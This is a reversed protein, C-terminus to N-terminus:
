QNSTYGLSMLAQLFSDGCAQRDYMRQMLEGVIFSKLTIRVQQSGIRNIRGELQKRKFSNGYFVSTYVSDFTTLSYGEVRTSTTIAVRYDPTTGAAVTQPTVHIGTSPIVVVLSTLEQVASYMRSAMDQDSVVVLVRAGKPLDIALHELYKQEVRVWLMKLHARLDAVNGDAFMTYETIRDILIGTEHHESFASGMATLVNKPTVKYPVQMELWKAIEFVHNNRAPTASMVVSYAAQSALRLASSTRQTKPDLTNHVEDLVFVAQSMYPELMSLSTKLQDHHLLLVGHLPPPPQARSCVVLGPRGHLANKAATNNAPTVIYNITDFCRTLETYASVLVARPVCWIIYGPLSQRISYLSDLVMKTKGSGTNSFFGFSTRGQRFRRQMLEVSETQVPSPERLDPRFSSANWMEQQLSSGLRRVLGPHFVHTTLYHMGMADRVTFGKSANPTIIGPCVVCLRCLFIFADSDVLRPLVDQNAGGDRGIDPFRISGGLTGTLHCVRELVRTALANFMTHVLVEWNAAIGACNRTLAAEVQHHLPVTLMAALPIERFTSITHRLVRLHEWRTTPSQRQPRGLHIHGDDAGLYARKGALSPPVYGMANIPVGVTRLMQKALTIVFEQETEEITDGDARVTRSPQRVVQLQVPESDILIVFYKNKGRKVSIHGIAGQIWERCLTTPMDAQGVFPPDVTCVPFGSLWALRQARQVGTVWEPDTSGITTHTRRPNHGTVLLFIKDMTPGFPRSPTVAPPLLLMPLFRVVWPACHQDMYHSIHVWLPRPGTRIVLRSQRHVIIDRVMRLDAPFSRLDDLMMSVREWRATTHVYAPHKTSNNYDFTRDTDLLTLAFQIVNVELWADPPEYRMQRSALAAACLCVAIPEMEDTMHSDEFGIIVLRKVAELGTVFRQIDPIFTGRSRAMTHCTYRLVDTSPIDVDNIRVHHPQHRIIKQLLSKLGGQSTPIYRHWHAPEIPTHQPEPPPLALVWNKCPIYIAGQISVAEQIPVITGHIGDILYRYRSHILESLSSVFPPCAEDHTELRWFEKRLVLSHNATYEKQGAQVPFRHLFLPYTRVTTIGESAPVEYMGQIGELLEDMRGPVTAVARFISTTVNTPMSSLTIRVDHTDNNTGIGQELRENPLPALWITLDRDSMGRFTHLTRCYEQLTLLAPGELFRYPRIIARVISLAAGHTGTKTGRLLGTHFPMGTYDLSTM